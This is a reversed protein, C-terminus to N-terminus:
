RPIARELRDFMNKNDGRVLLGVKFRAWRSAYNFALRHLRRFSTFRALLDLPLRWLMVSVRSMRDPRADMGGIALAASRRSLV